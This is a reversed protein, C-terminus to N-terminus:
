PVQVPSRDACDAAWRIARAFGRRRWAALAVTAANGGCAGHVGGGPHASASALYLRDIPTTPRALGPVPRFVLQQHLQATGGGLSGNPMSENGEGMAPPTAVHRGRVLDRFGPALAEIRAEIRDAFQATDHADWRGTVTGGADGHVDVPVHTYAWVTEKGAPARSPDTMSQQGVLLFPDQPIIGRAIEASSMSLEDVSEAIHITGARRADDASWPVPGDLTWDVKVTASDWQFRTIDRVVSPPLENSPILRRYLQPADVNALVARRARIVTGDDLIVGHATRHRVDISQVHSSCQVTGGGAELRRVLATTIAGAGGEAVPFGVDQGACALIWGYFGSLPSEPLLDAHLALGALLRRAQPSAFHEEGMRRAPLLAFRAFRLLERGRLRRALSLGARVPPFPTFLAEVLPARLDQWLRFNAEWAFGDEAAYSALTDATAALDQSIIPCTGDAAPHALVLPARLWRLGFQELQLHALIPSLGGLPFFASCHDSVFGPEVLEGSRAGGGPSSQAELVLVSWGQDQLLNAAVLGNPGSGIVIADYM